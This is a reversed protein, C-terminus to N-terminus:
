RALGSEIFNETDVIGRGSSVMCRSDVPKSRHLILTWNDGRGDTWLEIIASQDKTIAMVKLKEKHVDTLTKQAAAASICLVTMHMVGVPENPEAVASCGSLLMGMLTVTAARM